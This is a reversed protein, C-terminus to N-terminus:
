RPSWCRLLVAGAVALMALALGAMDAMALGAFGKRGTGTDCYGRLEMAAAIRDAREIVRPLWVTPLSTLIKFGSQRNSIAGRVAMAAAMRRTEYALTATQHVMQLLINSVLAPVPLRLLGERLDGMSLVTVTALTSVLAGAGWVLMALCLALSISDTTSVLAVLYIFLLSSLIVSLGLSLPARLARLPPGCM